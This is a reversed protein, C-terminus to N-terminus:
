EPFIIGLAWVASIGLIFLIFQALSIWFNKEKQIEPVLESAGLYIFGGAAFAILFGSFGKTYSFFFSSLVAGSLATVAALFNFLLAKSRALGGYLLVGFDGIEQPIEHFITSITIVVGLSTELFFGTAIVMGDIFNHIGDGILNLYIFGKVTARPDVESAPEHGHIHGHYWYIFRELFFFGVFGVTMYLLATPIDAVTELAELAEPLLGLYAAGLIGGAAFSVLIFLVRDLTKEKLSLMFVGVFSVLSVVVTALISYLLSMQFSGRNTQCFSTLFWGYLGESIWRLTKPPPEGCIGL